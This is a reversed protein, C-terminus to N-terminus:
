SAGGQTAASRARVLYQFTYFQQVDQESAQKVIIRGLDIDRPWPGSTPMGEDCSSIVAELEYGNRVFMQGIEHLTFFRIHTADLLGMDAYTWRGAVLGQLLRANQVNPISAVVRGGPQLYQHLMHVVKWPDYLHELVDACVIADFAHRRVDYHTLDMREIDATIVRDLVARAQEAAVPDIEIGWYSVGPFKRKVEQGTAGSGCGIELVSRFPFELLGIVEHRPRDQYKQEYGTSLPSFVPSNNM